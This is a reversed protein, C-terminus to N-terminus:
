AVQLSTLTVNGGIGRRSRLTAVSTARLNGGVGSVDALEHISELDVNGYIRELVAQGGIERLDVNGVEEITASRSLHSVFLSTFMGIGFSFIGGKIAPVWLSIDGRYDTITLTDGEQRM